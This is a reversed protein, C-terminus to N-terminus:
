GGFEREVREEIKKKLGDIQVIWLALKHYLLVSILNEKKMRLQVILVQATNLYDAAKLTVQDLKRGWWQLWM